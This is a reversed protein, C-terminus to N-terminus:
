SISQILNGGYMKEKEIFWKVDCYSFFIQEEAAEAVKM